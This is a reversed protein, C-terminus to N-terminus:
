FELRSNSVPLSAFTPTIKLCRIVSERLLPHLMGEIFMENEEVLILHQQVFKQYLRQSELDRSLLCLATLRNYRAEPTPTFKQALSKELSKKDIKLFRYQYSLKLDEFDSFALKEYQNLFLLTNSEDNKFFGEAFGQRYFERCNLKIIDSKLCEKELEQYLLNRASVDKLTSYYSTKLSLSQPNSRFSKERIEVEAAWYKRESLLGWAQWVLLFCLIFVSNKKQSLFKALLAFLLFAIPLLYRTSYFLLHPFVLGSVPIYLSLLLIILSLDRVNRKFLSRVGWFIIVAWLFLGFYLFENNQYKWDGLQDLDLINIGPWVLGLFMKGLATMSIQLKETWPLAIQMNTVHSYFYTQGISFTLAVVSMMALFIVKKRQHLYYLLGAFPLLVLSAKSLFSLILFIFPLVFDKNKQAKIFLYLSLIGWFFALVDKRASIWLITESFFPNLLVAFSSLLAVWYTIGWKRLILFFVFVSCSFLLFQHVRASFLSDHWFYSDVMYSMDRLPYYDINGDVRFLSKLSEFEFAKEIQPTRFLVSDDTSLLPAKFCPYYIVFLFLTGLLFPIVLRTKKM